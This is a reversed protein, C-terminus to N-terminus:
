RTSKKLADNLYFSVMNHVVYRRVKETSLLYGNGLESDMGRVRNTEIVMIMHISNQHCFLLCQIVSGISVPVAVFTFVSGVIGDFVVFVGFCIRLGPSLLNVAPLSNNTSITNQEHVFMINVSFITPMHNIEKPVTGHQM